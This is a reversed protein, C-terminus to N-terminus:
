VQTLSAAGANLIKQCELEANALRERKLAQYAQECRERFRKENAEKVSVDGPAIQPHHLTRPCSVSMVDSLIVVANGSAIRLNTPKTPRGTPSCSKIHLLLMLGYIVSAFLKHQVYFPVSAM